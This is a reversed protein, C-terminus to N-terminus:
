NLAAKAKNIWDIAKAYDEYEVKAKAIKIMDRVSPPLGNVEEASNLYQLAKDKNGTQAKAAALGLYDRVKTTMEQKEQAMRRREGEAAQAQRNQEALANAEREKKAREAAENAQGQKRDDVKPTNNNDRGEDNGKEVKRKDMKDSPSAPKPDVNTPRQPTTATQTQPNDVPPRISNETEVRESVSPDEKAPKNVQWILLVTAIIGTGIGIPMRYKQFPSPTPVEVQQPEEKIIKAVREAEKRDAELKAVRERELRETKQKELREAEKKDAEIKAIREYELRETRELRQRQETKEKELREAEKKDAEIKAREAAWTADNIKTIRETEKKDAEIKAIQEAEKKDAEIKAIREAEKKDAEIKAIREAEKKDAEIKAIREAEKKDAEIKAIREAEKKDAEIKAIREAEKKNAEIKAIWEAEKKDAEIKAIREAEKKDAEIKAIREAEKKDAEIKAIREAEKKDAEIKAIREAEKKDAEIKAIREAEKKDAEIKAIREAEKRKAEERKRREVEAILDLKAQAEQAHNGNAYKELYEVYGFAADINLAIKWEKEDAIHRLRKLTEQKFQGNPYQNLYALYSGETNQSLAAQWNDKETQRKLFVFQGGTTHGSQFLPRIDAQQEYNLRVEKIVSDALHVINLAEAKNERLHKLLAQAFPSNEGAKGDSVVGKGSIFIWRSPTREWEIFAGSVNGRTADRVLLNASFCSDSILLIHRAKFSQIIDRVEANAIYSSVRDRKANVPIWFGREGDLFGHGSYYILLRDDTKLKKSLADLEDIISDKTAAEDCLFLINQPDFYYDKVLLAAIDEIDKRANSLRTFHEYANIGIALLYNTGRKLEEVQAIPINGILKDQPM